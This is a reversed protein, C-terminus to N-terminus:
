KNEGKAHFFLMNVTNKNGKIINLPQLLIEAQVGNKKFYENYEQIVNKEGILIIRKANHALLFTKVVQENSLLGEKDKALELQYIWDMNSLRSDKPVFKYREELLSNNLSLKSGGELKKPKPASVACGTFVISTLLLFSLTKKM